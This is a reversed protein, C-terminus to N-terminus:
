PAAADFEAELRELEALREEWTALTQDADDAVVGHRLTLERAREPDDYTEPDALEQELAHRESELGELRQELRAVEERLAATARHRANRHEAEARRRAAPDERATGPRDERTTAQAAPGRGPAAAGDHAGPEAHDAQAHDDEHARAHLFSAYDGPHLRADGDRVEVIRDAVARILRQDHTVLVTTGEYAVLAQELVERSAVDLHNTPEDLLLLNTPALLQCALALRAREGGSLVRVPKRQDDGPFQFAGLVGRVDVSRDGAAAQGQELVTRSLDLQDSSHQAYYAPAVRHGLAVDGHDPALEGAMLKLLTSKGSGNPGVLAVTWGREIVLDVDELVPEEGYGKRVGDLRVVDRGSRPPTPLSLSLTRVRDDEVRIPEMRAIQKLKSQMQSARTNKARFRDVTRQLRAVEREQRKAAAAQAAIREAKARRYADYPGQDRTVGAQAVEVIEHAVADVFDRDHTVVVVAGEHAGLTQALWDISDLDLHNTPEDLLLVDPRDLLLRALEVRTQWGGSLEGVDRELRQAPVGLGTLIKRARPEAEYGGAAAFAEEARSWEALARERQAEDTAQEVAQELSRLRRQQARVGDPGGLVQELVTRGRAESADQSLRGVRVGGARAVQGADPRQEGSLLRLLTTKGTGNAGVVALRDGPDVQLSVRDLVLQAGHRVTVDALSLM